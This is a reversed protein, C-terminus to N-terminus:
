SSESKSSVNSTSETNKSPLLPYLNNPAIYFSLFKDGTNTVFSRVNGSSTIKLGMRELQGMSVMTQKFDPVLMADLIAGDIRIKGRHTARSSYGSEALGVDENIEVLTSEIFLSRDGSMTFTCGCDLIIQYLAQKVSGGFAYLKISTGFLRGDVLIVFTFLSIYLIIPPCEQLLRQAVPLVPRVLVKYSFPGISVKIFKMIEAICTYFNTHITSLINNTLNSFFISYRMITTIYTYFNTHIISLLNNTLNSLSTSINSICLSDFMYLYLYAFVDSFSLISTLFQILLLSFLSAFKSILDIFVFDFTTKSTTTAASSRHNFGLDYAYDFDSEEEEYTEEAYTEEAQASHTTSSVHQAGEEVEADESGKAASSKSKSETEKRLDIINFEHNFPCEPTHCEGNKIFSFCPRSSQTDSVPKTVTGNDNEGPVMYYTDKWVPKGKGKGKGGKGKGGRGGRGGKGGRGGGRTRVASANQDLPKNFPKLKNRDCNRHLWLVHTHLNPTKSDTKYKLVRIAEAYADKQNGKKVGQIFASYLQEDTIQKSSYQGNISRAYQQLRTSFTFLREGPEHRLNFFETLNETRDEQSNPACVVLINTLTPFIDTLSEQALELFEASLNETIASMASLRMMLPYDNEDLEPSHSSSSGNDLIDDVDITTLFYKVSTALAPSLVTYYKLLAKIWVGYNHTPSLPQSADSFPKNEDYKLMPISKRYREQIKSMQHLQEKMGHDANKFNPKLLSSIIKLDSKDTIISLGSINSDDSENGSDDANINFPDNETKINHRNRKNKSKPPKMVGGQKELISIRDVLVQLTESIYDLQVASAQADGDKSENLSVSM